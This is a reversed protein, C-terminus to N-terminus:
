WSSNAIIFCLKWICLNILSWGFEEWWRRWRPWAGGVKPAWGQIQWAPWWEVGQRVNSFTRPIKERKIEAKHSFHVQKTKRLNLKYYHSLRNGEVCVGRGGWRDFSNAVVVANFNSFIFIIWFSSQGRSTGIGSHFTWAQPQTSGSFFECLKLLCICFLFLFLLMNQSINKYPLLRPAWSRAKPEEPRSSKYCM